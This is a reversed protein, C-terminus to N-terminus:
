SFGKRSKTVVLHYVNELRKAIIGWDYKEVVLERAAEGLEVSLKRNEILEIIRLAFNDVDDEVLVHVGDNVDLGEVGISTSVVPLGCSFYELIKLRTGSGHLLPAIAIDSATLFETVDQVTGTFIVNSSNCKSLQMKKSLRGVIVFEVNKIRNQVNPAIKSAIVSAAEWNPLYEMNGVFIVKHCNKPGFHSQPDISSSSQIFANIDVGNPIVVIKDRRVGYRVLLEKEKESVTLIIEAYKYSTKELFVELVKRLRNPHKIRLAQFVDHSDVVVPRRFIKSLLPIILSGEVPGEM